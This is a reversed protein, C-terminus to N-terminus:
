LDQDMWVLDRLVIGNEMTGLPYGRQPTFHDREIWSFRFGARQYFALQGIGSSSTGVVVRRVGRSRLEDLVTRLMGTGVGRRHLAEDVAVARLEVTGDPEALALVIGIPTGDPADLAFLSGRQYYGLIEEISDDALCLLPLYADRGDGAPVQRMATTANV